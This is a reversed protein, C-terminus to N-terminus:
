IVRMITKLRIDFIQVELKQFCRVGPRSASTLPGCRLGSLEAFKEVDRYRWIARGSASELWAMARHEAKYHSLEASVGIPKEPWNLGLLSCFFTQISPVELFATSSCLIHHFVGAQNDRGIEGPMSSLQCAAGYELFAGQLAASLQQCLDPM